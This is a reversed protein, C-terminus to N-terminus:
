RSPEMGLMVFRSVSMVHRPLDFGIGGQAPGSLSQALKPLSSNDAFAVTKVESRVNGVIAGPETRLLFVEEVRTKWQELVHRLGVDVHAVGQVRVFFSALALRLTIAFPRFGQALRHLVVVDIM